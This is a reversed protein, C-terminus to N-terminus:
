CGTLQTNVAIVRRVRLPTVEPPPPLAPRRRPMPAKRLRLSPGRPGHYRTIGDIRPATTVTNHAKRKEKCSAVAVYMPFVFKEQLM